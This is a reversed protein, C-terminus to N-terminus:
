LQVRIMGTVDSGAPNVAGLEVKLGQQGLLGRLSELEATSRARLQIEMRGDQYRLLQAPLGAQQLSPGVRAMLALADTDQDLNQQLHSSMQGKLNVIRTEQPFWQHFLQEAQSRSAQAVQQYRHASLADHGMQVLVALVLVAAVVRWYPTLGASRLRPLVNFPHRSAQEPPLLPLAAPIAELGATQLVEALAASPQGLLTVARQEALHALTAPLYEANIAWYPGLRLLATDGDVLLTPRQAVLPLLLFDPLLAVLRWPGLAMANVYQSVLQQPLALITVEDEATQVTRVDLQDVPALSFEELTYRLGAEGLQRVQQRTLNQRVLLASSSPFFVSVEQVPHASTAQLLEDWNSAAQWPQGTLCWRWPAEGEPMWLYLM